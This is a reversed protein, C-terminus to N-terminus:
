WITYGIDILIYRTHQYYYLIWKYNYGTTYGIYIYINLRTDKHIYRNIRSM